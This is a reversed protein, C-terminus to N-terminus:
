NFFLTEELGAKIASIIEINGINKLIIADSRCGAVCAGCGKCLTENVIAKGTKEDMSIAKYPCVEICVACAACKQINVNAVISEAPIVDKSLITLARGAAAMAQSVSEDIFKPYHCLGALFIGETAFDVPRLKLHAELLYGDQNIACKFLMALKKADDRPRVGSALVLMDPHIEINTQLVEDWALVIIKKNEETVVPFHETDHRLFLIGLERAETYLREIVGFTRIDRYLMFIKMLPKQKKLEIARQIAHTCCVRSCYPRQPIRSGVCHIFVASSINNIDIEIKLFKQDLELLTMVNPNQNYLYNHPLNKDKPKYSEGGIAVIAVGHDIQSGDSLTTSFRGVSGKVDSIENNLKLTINPHNKVKETINDLYKRVDDGQWTMFFKNAHGGLRDKREVLVVPFGQDAISLAATIGAVGAGIVLATKNVGVSNFPLANYSRVRNVAMRVLDMAKRTAKEPNDKHVWSDQDRINAMEFLYRNLGADELTEQFLAEHTRPSCSAVVVRNLSKEKIINVMQGITDQSCSFINDQVFAVDKLTRAYESVAKVDVVSSINIGCHCVFVGIKPSEASINREKPREINVTDEWRSQFIFGSVNVSAASADMVSQPIDKPSGANGCVFIGNRSTKSPNFTETKIFNNDDLEINLHRALNITSLDTEIGTSLVALDFEEYNIKKDPTSYRIIVNGEHTPVINHVRAKIFNIGSKKARNYYAEFDKGHTRMDMYFISASLHEKSHERSIVAQKIAYMCCFSSCYPKSDRSMSRSGVCQLWAIKKPVKKDSPRELHGMCPGSPSLIREFELATVVNPIIKYGTYDLSQPNFTTYGTSIIVAGANIQIIKETDEFNVAGAPCVKQCFGCRGPNKLWICSEKDILYKLPVAQPYPIYASKRTGLAFDFENEVKKPCKEACAGCAICKSTDIYRPYQKVIATFDGVDGKLEVIESLTHLKINPHRGAEVLKPSLICASCDNTPFTKDLQAMKGGISPKKEILHVFFGSNALDLSAQVGSIGGGVVLVSGKPRM